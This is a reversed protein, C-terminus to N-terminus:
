KLTKAFGKELTAWQKDSWNCVSQALAKMVEKQQKAGAQKREKDRAEEEEETDASTYKRGKSALREGEAIVGKMYKVVFGKLFKQRRGEGEVYRLLQMAMAINLRYRSEYLKNMETSTMNLIEKASKMAERRRAMRLADKESTGPEFVVSRGKVKGTQVYNWIASRIWAPGYSYLYPDKDFIYSYYMSGFLNSFESSTGRFSADKYLVIERNGSEPDFADGSSQTYLRAESSDACIRIIAKMPYEDSVKGFKKDLWSRFAEAAKIIKATYKADAHTLVLVHKSKKVKWGKPVEKTMRAIRSDEHAKRRKKREAAPKKRWTKRGSHSLSSLGLSKTDAKVVRNSGTTGASLAAARDIFKFTKLARYCLPRLKKYHDELVEFEVAYDAEDGEFVYSILRRPVGASKEIKVEYQMAPVGSVKTPKEKDFFFGGSRLNRKLYDHYNKYPVSSDTIIRTNGEQRVKPGKYKRAADTFVIVRMYPRHDIYYESRKPQYSRNCLYKAVIWKEDIDVPVGSWKSPVKIKFGYKTDEHFGNKTQTAVAGTVLSFLMVPLLARIAYRRM